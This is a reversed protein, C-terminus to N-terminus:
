PWDESLMWRAPFGDLRTVLGRRALDRLDRLCTARDGYISARGTVEAASWAAAAPADRLWALLRLQRLSPRPPATM